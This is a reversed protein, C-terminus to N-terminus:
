SPAPVGIGYLLTGLKIRGEPLVAEELIARVESEM